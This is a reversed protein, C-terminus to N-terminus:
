GFRTCRSNHSGILNHISGQVLVFASALDDEGGGSEASNHCLDCCAAHQPPHSFVWGRPGHYTPATTWVLISIEPLYQHSRIEMIERIASHM